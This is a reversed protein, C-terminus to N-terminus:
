VRERVCDGIISSASHEMSNLLDLISTAPLNEVTTDKVYPLRQRQQLFKAPFAPTGARDIPISCELNAERLFECKEMPDLYILFSLDIPIGNVSPMYYLSHLRDPLSVIDPRMILPIIM